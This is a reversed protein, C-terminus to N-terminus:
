HWELGVPCLRRCRLHWGLQGAAVAYLHPRRGSPPFIGSLVANVGATRTVSITLSGNNKQHRQVWAGQNFAHLHGRDQRLRKSIITERRAITDWDLAYLHLTGSYAAPFVLHLRLQSVDYFCAARRTFADPSELAQVATTAASWQYRFGQDLVPTNPLSVFTLLAMGFSYPIVTPM